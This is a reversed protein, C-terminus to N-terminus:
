IFKKIIQKLLEASTGMKSVEHLLVGGDKENKMQYISSNNSGDGLLKAKRNATELMGETIVFKDNELVDLILNM